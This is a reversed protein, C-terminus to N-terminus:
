PQVVPNAPPVVSGNKGLGTTDYQSAKTPNITESELNARVANGASFAVRDTHQAYDYSCGALLLAMATGASVRTLILVGNM